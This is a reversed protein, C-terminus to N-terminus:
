NNLPHWLQHRARDMHVRIKCRATADAFDTDSVSIHVESPHAPRSVHRDVFFLRDEGKFAARAGAILADKGAGSPGVVMVLAGSGIVDPQRHAKADPLGADTM